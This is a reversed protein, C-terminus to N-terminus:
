AATRHRTFNDGFEEDIIWRCMRRLPEIADHPNAMSVDLAHGLTVIRQGGHFALSDRIKKKLSEPYVGITQTHITMRDVAEEIDDIPVLNGVRCGLQDAFDVPENILSVIMAGEDGKMGVVRFWDSHRIVEIESRLDPDFAPHLESFHPPLEQVAQYAHEGLRNLRELGAPDTGSQVYIVRANACGEQNVRGIDNAIRRAADKMTEESAFVESGVISGSLKPDMAVLELGPQLYRTIHTMSAFGGWAVIKELNTPRYLQSEFGEDGGKWYAVSYHRTIPHDPAMEIMARGIAVATMPDNSPSKVIADGRTVANRFQTIGAVLPSNGANIHVTRAGFPRIHVVRGDNLTQPVWGDMYALGIRKEVVELVHDRKFFRPMGEDYQFSLINETLGSTLMSLEYAQRMYPNTKTDLRSSLEDLYDVVDSFPLQYLDQMHTPDRLVLQSLFKNVDPTRFRLEGRRATFEVLDDEIIEGRIILPILFEKM